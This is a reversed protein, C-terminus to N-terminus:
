EGWMQRARLEWDHLKQITQRSHWCTLNVKFTNSSAEGGPPNRVFIFFLFRHFGYLGMTFFLSCVNFGWSILFFVCGHSLFFVCGHSLTLYTYTHSPMDCVSIVHFVRPFGWSASPDLPSQDTSLPTMKWTFIARQTSHLMHAQYSQYACPGMAGLILWQHDKIRFHPVESFCSKQLTAYKQSSAPHHRSTKTAENKTPFPCISGTGKVM